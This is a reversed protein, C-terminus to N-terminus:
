GTGSSTSPKVIRFIQLYEVELEDRHVALAYDTGIELIRVAPMSVSGRLVGRPDFVLYEFARTGASDTPGRKVWLNGDHDLEIDSYEPRVASVPIREILRRVDDPSLKQGYMDVTAKRWAVVEREDGRVGVPEALWRVDRLLGDPGFCVVRPGEQDGICTREENAQVAITTTKAFAPTVPIFGWPSDVLVQEVDGFVMLTRQDALDPSMRLLGGGGRFRGAAPLDRRKEVLRVLVDGGPIVWGNGPYLPPEVVRAVQERSVAHVSVLEGEPDYKTLRFAANDWVFISDAAHALVQTPRQFEGPGSGPGGLRQKFVGLEDYLRVTRSGADAVVLHGDSRRVAASIESFQYEEEGALVGLTLTPEASVIWAEGEKWRAERSLVITTGVSDRVEVAVSPVGVSECGGPVACVALVLLLM